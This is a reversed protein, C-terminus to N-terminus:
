IGVERAKVELLLYDKLEHVTYNECPRVIGKQINLLVKEIDQNTLDKIRIPKQQIYIVEQVGNTNKKVKIEPLYYINRVYKLNQTDPSLTDKIRKLEARVDTQHM